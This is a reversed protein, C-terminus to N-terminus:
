YDAMFAMNVTPMPKLYPRLRAHLRKPFPYPDLFGDFSETDPMSMAM